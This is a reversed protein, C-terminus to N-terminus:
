PPDLGQIKSGKHVSFMESLEGFSYGRNVTVSSDIMLVGPGLIGKKAFTRWNKEYYEMFTKKDFDVPEM